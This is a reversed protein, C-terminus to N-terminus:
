PPTRGNSVVKLRWMTHPLELALLTAREHRLEAVRLEPAPPHTRRDRGTGTGDRYVGPLGLLPM